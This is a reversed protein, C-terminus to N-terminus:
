HHSIRGHGNVGQFQVQSDYGHETLYRGIGERIPRLPADMRDLSMGDLSTPASSLREVMRRDLHLEWRLLASFMPRSVKSLLRWPSEIAYFAVVDTTTRDVPVLYTMSRIAVPRRQGSAAAQWYSEAKSRLPDFRFEAEDVFRDDGAGGLGRRLFAVVAPLHRQRGEARIRVNDAGVWTRVEVSRLAATDYGFWLHTHGTHEMEAMNDAVVEAGARFRMRLRVCDRESGIGPDPLLAPLGRAKLWVAGAIEVADYSKATAHLNADAPCEARGERDFCWGHYPCVLKDAEVRGLSLPMLRHPCADDLAGIGEATRFLVLDRGALRAKVPRTGLESSLRIPHWFRLLGDM